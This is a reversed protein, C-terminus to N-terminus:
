KLELVFKYPSRASGVTFRNEGSSLDGTLTRHNVGIAVENVITGLTSGRDRIFFRDGEREISCHSRSIQYPETDAILLDNASFVTHRGVQDAGKRGIRFPFKTIEIQDIGEPLKSACLPTLPSLVVTHSAMVPSQITQETMQQFRTAPHPAPAPQVQHHAGGALTAARSEARLRMELHLRDNVTRLREFFAALYPLLRHPNRLIAEQFDGPSMVECETDATCRATASRPREEIMAMEGFIDGEGLQALIVPRHKGKITIEVKGALIRYAELSTEGEHFIVDGDRYSNRRM